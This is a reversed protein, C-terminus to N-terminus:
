KVTGVVKLVSSVVLKWERSQPDIVEFHGTGPLTVLEATDGLSLAKATYDRSLEYPVNEDQTGHILVQPVTLPLLEFPSAVDYRDPVEDPRGGLFEEVVGNSLRLEWARRLNVVGALSVVAKLPLSNGSHLVNGPPIRGRGALWLALHGGASHGLTIVRDLDLNHEPALERVFDAAAAVDEFTGPWGGRRNGIRRYEISWTAMGQATLAACVPRIHELEYRARWFGGHIVVVVPHPGTGPPLRLEGFQLPDNGYSIRAHAPPPTASFIHRATARLRFYATLRQLGSAVPNM